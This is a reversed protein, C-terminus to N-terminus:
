QLRFSLARSQLPEPSALTGGLWFAQVHFDTGALGDPLHLPLSARGCPSSSLPIWLAERPWVVYLQLSGAPAPPDQLERGVIIGGPSSPPLNFIEVEFGTGAVPPADLGLVVPSGGHLSAEGSKRVHPWDPQYAYAQWRFENWNGAYPVIRVDVSTRGATMSPPIEFYLDQWRFFANRVIRCAREVFVDDVWLAAGVKGDDRGRDVRVQLHAGQNARPLPVTFRSEGAIVRGRDTVYPHTDDAIYRSAIPPLLTSLPAVYSSSAESLPDGVDITRIREMAPERKEYLCALSAINVNIDNYMGHEQTILLSKYYARIDSLFLIYHSRCNDQNMGFTSLRPLMARASNGHIPTSFQVDAISEYWAMGFETETAQGRDGRLGDFVWTFDGELYTLEHVAHPTPTEFEQILSVIKGRGRREVATFDVGTSTPRAERYDTTFYGWPEPYAGPHFSVEAAIQTTFPSLNELEVIVQSRFPMPYYCHAISGGDTGFLVSAVPYNPRAAGCLMGLPADVSPEAEDDFRIKVRMFSYDLPTHVQFRLGLLAGQAQNMYVVRRQGPAYWHPHSSNWNAPADHPWGGARGYVQALETASPVPPATGAPAHVSYFQWFRPADNNDLGADATYLSREREGWSDPGLWRPSALRISDFPIPHRSNYGGGAYWVLPAQFPGATGSFFEKVDFSWDPYPLGNRRIEFPYNEVAHIHPFNRLDVESLFTKFAYALVGPRDDEFLVYHDEDVYPYSRMEGKNIGGLFGDDNGRTPDTVSLYRGRTGYPPLVALSAAVGAFPQAAAPATQGRAGDEALPALALLLALLSSKPGPPFHHNM